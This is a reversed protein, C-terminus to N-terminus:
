SCPISDIRRLHVRTLRNVIIAFGLPSAALHKQLDLGHSRSGAESHMQSLVALPGFGLQALSHHFACAVVDRLVIVNLGRATRAHERRKM